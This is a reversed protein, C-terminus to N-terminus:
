DEYGGTETNYIKSEMQQDPIKLPNYHSCIPLPKGLEFTVEFLGPQIETYAVCATWEAIMRKIIAAIDDNIVHEATNPLDSRLMTPKGIKRLKSLYLDKNINKEAPLNFVLNTLYESGYILSNSFHEILWRDDIDVSLKDEKPYINKISQQLMEESLEPFDGNLFLERFRNVQADKLDISPLIGKKYYSQVNSTRCGHYVRIHSYRQRFEDIKENTIMEEISQSALGEFAEPDDHYKVIKQNNRIKAKLEPSLIESFMDELVPQWEIFDKWIFVGINEPSTM